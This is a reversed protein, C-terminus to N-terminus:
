NRWLLKILAIDVKDMELAAIPLEFHRYASMIIHVIVTVVLYLRWAHVKTRNFLM